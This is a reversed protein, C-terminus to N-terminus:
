TCYIHALYAIIDAIRSAGSGLTNYFYSHKDQGGITNISYQWPLGIFRRTSETIAGNNLIRTCFRVAFFAELKVISYNRLGIKTDLALYNDIFDHQLVFDNKALYLQPSHVHGYRLILLAAILSTKQYKTVNHKGM